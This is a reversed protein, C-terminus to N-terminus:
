DDETGGKKQRGEDRGSLREERQTKGMKRERQRKGVRHRWKTQGRDETEGHRMGKAEREKGSKRRIRKRGEKKRGRYRERMCDGERM